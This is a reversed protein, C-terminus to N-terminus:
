RRREKLFALAAIRGFPWMPSFSVPKWVAKVIGAVNAVSGLSTSAVATMGQVGCTGGENCPRSGPPNGIIGAITQGVPYYTGGIGIRFLTGNQAEAVTSVALFAFVASIGILRRLM